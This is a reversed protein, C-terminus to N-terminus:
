LLSKFTCNDPTQPGVLDDVPLAAKWLMEFFRRQANAIEANYVEIGFIEGDKWNYYSTVDDYIVTSHTIPFVSDGVYRSDWAALRENSKQGYWEQQTKIFHDSIIGRFKMDRENCRRVWREFFTSNTRIQMNEFLMSLNETNSRTQNWFMQKLGDSGKYFQVRTTPSNLTSQELADKVSPLDNRLGKLEEEKKNLILQLNDAPAAKLINRNSDATIEILNLEALLDILRYIRTREVGSNRALQSITQPGFACLAVYLEAIEPELGLKAFYDHIASIDKTM